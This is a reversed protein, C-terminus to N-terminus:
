AEQWLKELVAKAKNYPLVWIYRHGSMSKAVRDLNYIEGKQKLFKFMEKYALLEENLRFKPFFLYKFGFKITGVKKVRKIHIEEHKLVALSVNKPNDNKLDQYIEKNLYITMGFNFGKDSFIGLRNMFRPYPKVYHPLNM